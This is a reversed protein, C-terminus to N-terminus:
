YSSSGTDWRHTVAIEDTTLHSAFRGGSIWDVSSVTLTVSSASQEGASCSGTDSPEPTSTITMSGSDAYFRGTFETRSDYDACYYDWLYDGVWLQAWFEPEGSEADREAFDLSEVVTEGCPVSWQPRGSLFEFYVVLAVTEDDWMQPSGNTSVYWQGCIYHSTFEDEFGAPPEERPECALVTLLVSSVILRSANSPPAPRQDM